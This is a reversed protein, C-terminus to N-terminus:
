GRRRLMTLGGAALLALSAPEPILVVSGDLLVSEGFATAGGTVSPEVTEIQPGTPFTAQNATNWSYVRFELNGVLDDYESGSFAYEILQTNVDGTQAVVDGIDFGDLDADVLLATNSPRSNPSGQSTAYDIVLKGGDLDLEYGAAPAVTFGFYYDYFLADALDDVVISNDGTADGYEYRPRWLPASIGDGGATGGPGVVLGQQLQLNADILGTTTYPDTEEFAADATQDDNADFDFSLVPVAAAHGTFAIAAAALSASSFRTLSPTM